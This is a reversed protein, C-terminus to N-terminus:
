LVLDGGRFQDGSEDLLVSYKDAPLNAAGLRTVHSRNLDAARAISVVHLREIRHPFLDALSRARFPFHLPSQIHDSDIDVARYLVLVAAAQEEGDCPQLSYDLTSTM